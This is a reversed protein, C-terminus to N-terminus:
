VKPIGTRQEAWQAVTYEAGRPNTTHKTSSCSINEGCSLASGHSSTCHKLEIDSDDESLVHTVIFM